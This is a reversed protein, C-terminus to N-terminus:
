NLWIYNYKKYTCNELNELFITIYIQFQITYM